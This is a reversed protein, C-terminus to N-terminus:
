GGARVQRAAVAPVRAASARERSDSRRLHRLWARREGLVPPTGPRWDRGDRTDTGFLPALVAATAIFALILWSM